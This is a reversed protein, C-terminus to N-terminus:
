KMLPEIDEKRVCVFVWILAAVLYAAEIFLGEVLGLFKNQYFPLEYNPFFEQSEDITYILSCGAKFFIYIAMLLLGIALSKIKRRFDSPYVLILSALFLFPMLFNTHANTYYALIKGEMRKGTKRYHERARKIEEKNLIKILLKTKEKKVPQALIEAKSSINKYFKEISSGYFDRAKSDFGTVSALLYLGLYVGLFSGFFVVITKFPKM